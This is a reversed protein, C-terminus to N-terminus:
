SDSAEHINDADLLLASLEVAGLGCLAGVALWTRHGATSRPGVGADFM